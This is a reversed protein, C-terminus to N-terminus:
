LITARRHVQRRRQDFTWVADDDIIEAIVLAAISEPDENRDGRPPPYDRFVRTSRCRVSLCRM